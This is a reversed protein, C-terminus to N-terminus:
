LTRDELGYSYLFRRPDKLLTRHWDEKQALSNMVAADLTNRALIHTYRVPRKQNPGM